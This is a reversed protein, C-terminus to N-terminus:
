RVVLITLEKVLYTKVFVGKSVRLRDAISKLPRRNNGM